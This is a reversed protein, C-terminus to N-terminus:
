EDKGRRRALAEEHIELHEMEKEVLAERLAIRAAAKRAKEDKRKSKAVTRELKKRNAERVGRDMAAIARGTSGFFKKAVCACFGGYETMTEPHEAEVVTATGDKWRVVTKSGDFIVKDVVMKLGVDVQSVIAGPTLIIRSIAEDDKLLNM